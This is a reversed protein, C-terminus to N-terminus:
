KAFKVLLVVGLLALGGVIVLQKTDPSLGVGVTPQMGYQAPNIDLPPLGQQARKLQMDMVKQQNRLQNISLYASGAQKVIEAIRDAWGPAPAETSTTAAVSDIATFGLGSLTAPNKMLPSVHAFLQPQRHRMWAFFGKPGPPYMLTNPPIKPASGPITPAVRAKM